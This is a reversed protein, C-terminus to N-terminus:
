LNNSNIVVTISDDDEVETREIDLYRSGTIGDATTDLRVNIKKTQSKATELDHILSLILKDGTLDRWFQGYRYATIKGTSEDVVVEYKKNSLKVYMITNPETKM